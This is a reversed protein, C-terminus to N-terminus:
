EKETNLIKERYKLTQDYNQKVQENTLSKTYLRTTYVLGKLYYLNGAYSLPCTGIFFPADSNNWKECSLQYSDSGYYTYGYETGNIYLTLKDVKKNDITEAEVEYVITLYVDTNLQIIDEIVEDAIVGGYSITSLKKGTGVYSSSSYLKAIAKDIGFYFRMSDTMNNQKLDHMKCFLGTSMDNNGNNNDYRLRDLYKM